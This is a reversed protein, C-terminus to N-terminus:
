CVRAPRDTQATSARGFQPFKKHLFARPGALGAATIATAADKSPQGIVFNLYQRSQERRSNCQMMGNRIM